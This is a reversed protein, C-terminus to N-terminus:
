GGSRLKPKFPYREQGRIMEFSGGKGDLPVLELGALPPDIFILASRGDKRDHRM